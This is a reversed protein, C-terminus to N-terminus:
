QKITQIQLIKKTNFFNFILKFFKISISFFKKVNQKNNNVNINILHLDCFFFQDYNLNICKMKKQTM